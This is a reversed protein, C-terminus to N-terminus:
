NTLGIETEPLFRDLLGKIEPSAIIEKLSTADMNLNSYDASLIHLMGAFSRNYTTIERAMDLIAGWVYNIEEEPVYTCIKEWIQNMCISDYLKAPNELQKDTFSINTYAKIAEIRFFVELQVLNFYGEDAGSLELVNTLLQLKEELPLYQKVRLECGEFITTDVIEPVAKIKQLKSFALKAM